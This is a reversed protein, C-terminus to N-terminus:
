MMRLVHREKTYKAYVREMVVDYFVIPNVVFYRSFWLYQHYHEIVFQGFARVLDAKLSLWQLEYQFYQLM